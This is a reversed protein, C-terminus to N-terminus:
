TITCVSSDKTSTEFSPLIITGNIPSNQFKTLMKAQPLTNSGIKRQITWAVDNFTYQPVQDHDNKKLQVEGKILILLDLFITLKKTSKEWPCYRDSFDYVMSPFSLPHLLIKTRIHLM